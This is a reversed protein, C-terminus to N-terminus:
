TLIGPDKLLFAPCNFSEFLIEGMKHRDKNKGSHRCTMMVEIKILETVVYACNVQINKLNLGLCIASPMAGSM